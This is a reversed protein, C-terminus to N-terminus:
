NSGIRDIFACILRLANLDGEKTEALATPVYDPINGGEFDFLIPERSSGEILINGPHADGWVAGRDHLYRIAGTIKEKWLRREEETATVVRDLTPGAIFPMLFAEIGGDGSEVVGILQMLNPHRRGLRMRRLENAFVQTRKWRIYKICYQSTGRQVKFVYDHFRAVRKFESSKYLAVDPVPNNELIAYNFGQLSGLCYSLGAHDEASHKSPCMGEAGLEARAAGRGGTLRTPQLKEGLIALIAEHM